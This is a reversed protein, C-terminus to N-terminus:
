FFSFIAVIHKLGTCLNMKAFFINQPQPCKYVWAKLITKYCLYLKKLPKEEVMLGGNQDRPIEQDKASPTAHIEELKPVRSFCLIVLTELQILYDKTMIVYYGCWWIDQEKRTVRFFIVCVPFFGGIKGIYSYLTRPPWL